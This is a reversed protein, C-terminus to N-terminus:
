EMKFWSPMSPTYYFDFADSLTMGGVVRDYEDRVEFYIAEPTYYHATLSKRANSGEKKYRLFRYTNGNTNEGDHIFEWDNMDFGDMTKENSPQREITM